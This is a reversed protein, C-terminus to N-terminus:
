APRPGDGDEIWEAVLEPAAPPHCRACVTAGQRSRWFRRGGCSCTPSPIAGGAGAAPVEGPPPTSAVAAGGFTRKVAILRGITERTWGAGVVDALEQATWIRGRPIGEGRLVEVEALSSVFYHPDAEGPIRVTLALHATAFEDLPLALVADVDLVLEPRPAKPETGTPRTPSIPRSGQPQPGVFGVFGPQTLKPPAKPLRKAESEAEWTGDLFGALYKM